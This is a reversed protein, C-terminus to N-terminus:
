NKSVEIYIKKSNPILLHAIQCTDMGYISIHQM